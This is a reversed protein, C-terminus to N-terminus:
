QLGHEGEEYKEPNFRRAFGARCSIPAKSCWSVSSSPPWAGLQVDRWERMFVLSGGM